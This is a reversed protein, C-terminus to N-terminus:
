GSSRAPVITSVGLGYLERFQAAVAGPEFARARARGNAGLRARLEVDSMLRRIAGAAADADGVPFLLGAEEKGLLEALPPLDSGVVPIGNLMAEAAVRCFSEELSPCFVVDIAGYIARVDNVKGIFSVRSDSAAWLRDWVWANETSRPDTFLSWVFPENKLRDVIGPLLQFGKYLADSGLYGVANGPSTRRKAFVDAPDIPNPVIQVEGPSALGSEVLVDRATPSVAVCRVRHLVRRWIPGLRRMWASPERAHCWVVVPVGMVFAAPAVVNLEEPGNAHIAVIRHRHRWVSRAILIAARPRSSRRAPGGKPIPVHEDVLSRERVLAPFQGIDPAALVRTVDVGVHQIVTALSRTSGGLGAALAVFLVVPRGHEIRDVGVNTPAVELTGSRLIARGGL